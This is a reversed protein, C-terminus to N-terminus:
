PRENLSLTNGETDRVEAARIGPAVERAASAVQGGARVVEACAQGLDGVAFHIGLREGGHGPVRALGVRVGAIRLSSWEPSAFVVEAGFAGAYFVSARPMDTVGVSFFTESVDM